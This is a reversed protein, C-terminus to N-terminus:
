IRQLTEIVRGVGNGDVWRRGADSMKQRRMEDRVLWALESQLQEEQVQHSWGLNVACGHTQLAAAIETQNEALVLAISPLGMFALEWSTSGAAAIAMDAWAMLQPMNTANVILAVSPQHDAIMAKLNELHPNSMGIVVKIDLDDIPKLMELIRGTVNEPDAGGLTILVKRSKVRTKRQWYRWSLFERRLLAFQPGFLLQTYPARQQYIGEHAHPNQNLILDAHYRVAHGYDDLVLLRLGAKKIHLQFAEGFHYGDAVIWSAGRARALAVTFAADEPSGPVAACHVFDMGESQLRWDLTPVSIAFAFLAQGGRQQWGQALALCRMVHGIGIEAGGDARILLANLDEERKVSVEIGSIAM